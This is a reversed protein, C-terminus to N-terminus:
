GGDHQDHDRQRYARQRCAGSCYRADSRAPLFVRGCPCRVPEREVRRRRNRAAALCPDSCYRAMRRAHAHVTRGCGQCPWAGTVAWRGYWGALQYARWRHQGDSTQHYTDWCGACVAAATWGGFGFHSRHSFVCMWVPEGPELPRQCGACAGTHRAQNARRLRQASPDDAGVLRRAEAVDAQFKAAAEAEAAERVRDVAGM